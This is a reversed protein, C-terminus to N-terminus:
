VPFRCSIIMVLLCFHFIGLVARLYNPQNHHFVERSTSGPLSASIPFFSLPFFFSYEAVAKWHINERGPLRLDLFMGLLSLM